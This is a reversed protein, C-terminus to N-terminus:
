PYGLLLALVAKGCWVRAAICFVDGRTAKSASRARLADANAEASAAFGSPLTKSSMSESAAFTESSPSTSALAYLFNKSHHSPATRLVLNECFVAPDLFACRSALMPFAAPSMSADAAFISSSAALMEVPSASRCLAVLIRSLSAELKAAFAASSTSTTSVKPRATPTRSRSIALFGAAKACVPVVGLMSPRTFDSPATTSAAEKELASLCFSRAM